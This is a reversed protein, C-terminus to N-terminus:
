LPKRAVMKSDRKWTLKEYRKLKEGLEAFSQIAEGLSFSINPGVTAVEMKM